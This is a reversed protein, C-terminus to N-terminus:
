LIKAAPCIDNVKCNKCDPKRADCVSRGFLVLRHSFLTWEHQPIVKMLDQEIKEPDSNKTMGFRNSIRIVHTDVVMGPTDFANGLVVNATKRGVGALSTLDEMNNPVVGGFKEVIGKAANIINKAKNKYFGTSHIISEVDEISAKAMTEADPYKAFLAPTVKNVQKDTCQASLITAVLLQFPTEFELACKPAPFLETLYGNFKEIRPDNKKM